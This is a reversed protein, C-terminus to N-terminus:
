AKAIAYGYQQFASATDLYEVCETVKGDALRFLFVYDNAYPANGATVTRMSFLTVVVDDEALVRNMTITIQPGYVDGRSRKRAAIVEEAGRVVAPYGLVDQCSPPIVSVFDPAALRRFADFDDTRIAELFALATRVNAQTDVASV